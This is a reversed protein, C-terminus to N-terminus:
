FHILNFKLNPSMGGYYNLIDSALSKRFVIWSTPEHPAQCHRVLAAIVIAASLAPLHIAYVMPAFVFM